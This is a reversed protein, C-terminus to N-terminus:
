NEAGARLFFPIKGGGPANRLLKTVCGEKKPFPPDRLTAGELPKEERRPPTPRRAEKEPPGEGPPNRAAATRDSVTLEINIEEKSVCFQIRGSRHYQFDGIDWASSKFSFSRKWFCDRSMLGMTGCRSCFLVVPARCDGRSHGPVGCRWCLSEPRRLRTAQPAADMHTTKWGSRTSWGTASTKPCTRPSKPRHQLEPQPPTRPQTTAAPRPERPSRTPAEPSSHEQRPSAPRPVSPQAAPSPDPSDVGALAVDVEDVVTWELDLLHDMTHVSNPSPSVQPYVLTTTLQATPRPPENHSLTATRRIHERPQTAGVQYPGPPNPPRDPRVSLTDAVRNLVGKRYRIDFDHQQLFIAWRALRGAPNKIARLWKLSQHDTLMTFRYGELYPRM